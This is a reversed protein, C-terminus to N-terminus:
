GKLSHSLLLTSELLEMMASASLSWDWGYSDWDCLTLRNYPQL